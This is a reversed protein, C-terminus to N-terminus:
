DACFFFVTSLKRIFNKSGIFDKGIEVAYKQRINQRFTDYDRQLFYSLRERMNAAEGAYSQQMTYHMGTLEKVVADEVVAVCQLPLGLFGIDALFRRLRKIDIGEIPRETTSNNMVFGKAKMIGMICWFKGFIGIKRRETKRRKEGKKKTKKRM